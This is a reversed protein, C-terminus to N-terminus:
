DWRRWIADHFRRSQSREGVFQSLVEQLIEATDVVSLSPRNFFRNGDAIAVRKERVARLGRWLPNEDLVEMEAISRAVDFGCPAVVLVDPDAAAIDELSVYPSPGGAAALLPEGGALAVLEPIWHGGAMPPDLWEICLVTPPQANQAASASIAALRRRAAVNAGQAEDLCGLAAGVTEIDRWIDALSNPHLSVIRVPRGVWDCVAAEVDKLSAACVTCQDQTLIVDPALERLLEQDVQYVALGDGVLSKVADDIARSSSAIDFKPATLAPLRVVDDPTDCEHSRGVLSGRLGLACVIETASAILSIIRM